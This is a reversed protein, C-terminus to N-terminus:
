RARDRRGEVAPLYVGTSVCVCLYVCRYVGTVCVCVCVRLLCRRVGVGTVCVCVCVQFVCVQLVCVFVPVCRYYVCVCVSSVCVQIVCRYCVGNVYVHCMQLVYRYCVDTVCM